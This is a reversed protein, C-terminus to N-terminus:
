QKVFFLASGKADGTTTATVTLHTKDASLTAIGTFSSTATSCTESFSVRYLTISTPTTTNGSYSCGSTSSGTMTGTDTLTWTLDVAGASAKWTGAADAYAAIGSLTDSQSLTLSTGLVNTFSVSKPSASLNASYSGTTIDTPANAPTALDYSKGNASQTSTASVKVLRSADQALVWATATTATSSDDPVVLATVGPTVGSATAWRGQLTRTDFGTPTTPTGTGSDGSDGGGGCATLLVTTSTALILGLRTTHTPHLTHAPTTM